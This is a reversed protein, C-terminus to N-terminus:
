LGEIFWNFADSHLLVLDTWHNDLDKLVCLCGTVKIYPNNNNRVTFLKTKAVM